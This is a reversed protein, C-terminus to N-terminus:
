LHALSAFGFCFEWVVFVETSDSLSNFGHPTFRLVGVGRFSLAGVYM